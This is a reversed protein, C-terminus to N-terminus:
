EFLSIAAMLGVGLVLATLEALGQVIRCAIKGSARDIPQHQEALLDPLVSVLAIYIFGGATFPLLRTTILEPSLLVQSASTIQGDMGVGAALLSLSAGLLAGLATVLQLLM